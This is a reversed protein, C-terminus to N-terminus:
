GLFIPSQYHGECLLQSRHVDAKGVEMGGEEEEEEELALRM